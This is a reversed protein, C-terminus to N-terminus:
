HTTHGGNVQIVAQIRGPMSCILKRFFEKSIAEWEETVMVELERINSPQPNRKRLGSEVFSWIEEIPNLDPSQPPWSLIEVKQEKLFDRAIKSTHVPANDEQFLFKKRVRRAHLKLTPIAYTALIDRYVTGTVSGELPVIPGPGVWSFCGWFM